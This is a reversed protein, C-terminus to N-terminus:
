NKLSFRKSFAITMSSLLINDVDKKGWFIITDACEGIFSISWSNGHYGFSIKPMIQPIFQWRNESTNIGADLGLSLKINFFMDHPFVFTYSYGANPGFYIFRQKSDYHRISDNSGYISTYFVGMGWLFSGSSKLQRSDLDYVASLSHNKNNQIWGASIGASLLNLDVYTDDSKILSFEQYNKVFAEYYLADYYSNIQINFSEFPNNDFAYFSPLSLGLSVQKYRAGFGLAWPNQAQYEAAREQSFNTIGFAGFVTFAFPENFSVINGNPATNEEAAM